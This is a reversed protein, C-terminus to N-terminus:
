KIASALTPAVVYPTVVDKIDGAQINPLPLHLPAM